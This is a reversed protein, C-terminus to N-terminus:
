PSHEQRMKKQCVNWLISEATLKYSVLRTWLNPLSPRYDPTHFRPRPHVPNLLSSTTVSLYPCPQCSAVSRIYTCSNYLHCSSTTTWTCPPCITVSQMSMVHVKWGSSLYKGASLSLLLGLIPARVTYVRHILGASSTCSLNSYQRKIAETFAM